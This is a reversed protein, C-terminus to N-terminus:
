DKDGMLLWNFGIWSGLSLSGRPVAGSMGDAAWHASSAWLAAQAWIECSCHPYKRLNEFWSQHNNYIHTSTYYIPNYGQLDKFWFMSPLSHQVFIPCKYLSFGSDLSGGSSLRMDKRTWDPLKKAFHGSIVQYSRIHGSIVQHSGSVVVRLHLRGPKHSTDNQLSCLAVQDRSPGSPKKTWSHGAGKWFTAVPPKGSIVSCIVWITIDCKFNSGM